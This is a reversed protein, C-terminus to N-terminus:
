RTPRRTTLMAILANAHAEIRAPDTPDVGSLLRAEPANTYLLTGGGLMLYFATVSDVDIVEGRRRLPEWLAAVLDFRDQVYTAVLWDLRESPAGSEHVMIRNLEPRRAAHYVIARIGAELTARRGRAGRRQATVELHLEDLLLAVAARWLDLKSAFHYNIQPQHVGARTAIARTSAGDFGHAAFEHIAAVLLAARTVDSLDSRAM